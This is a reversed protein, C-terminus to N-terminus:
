NLREVKEIEWFSIQPEGAGIDQLSLHLRQLLFTEFQQRSEWLSVVRWGGDMPGGMRFLNGEPPNSTIAWAETLADDLESSGGPVEVVVLVPL